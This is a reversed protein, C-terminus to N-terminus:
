RERALVPARVTAPSPAAPIDALVLPMASVLRAKLHDSLRVCLALATFTPEAIGGAPFVSPGAIYLNDLDHCRLDHRTVGDEASRSMRTTGMHHFSDRAAGLTERANFDPGPALRVTGLDLRQLESAVTRAFGTMTRTELEGVRWDLKVRPMGYGDVETSLSVRSDPDPAQECDIVLRIGGSDPSRRRQALLRTLLMRSLLGAGRAMSLTEDRTPLQVRGAQISRLLRRMELWGAVDGPLEFDIHAMVNLWGERSMLGDTPELKLCYRTGNIFRPDFIDQVQRRVRPALEGAWYSIHDQFFRGV